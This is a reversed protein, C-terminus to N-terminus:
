VNSVFTPNESTVVRGSGVVQNLKAGDDKLHLDKEKRSWKTWRTRRDRMTRRKLEKRRALYAEHDEGEPV